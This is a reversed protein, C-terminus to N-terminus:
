SRIDEITGDDNIRIIRSARAGSLDGGNVYFDVNDRFYGMAEEITDAPKTQAMNASTTALPGTSKLLNQLPSHDPIRFPLSDYGRHAYHLNGPVDLIVSVPGPWYTQASLLSRSDVFHEVQLPDNILITGVPKDVERNKIHYIKAIAQPNDLRAVIGYVTDTPIVGVAGNNLLETVEQTFSDFIKM